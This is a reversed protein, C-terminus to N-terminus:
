AETDAFFDPDEAVLEQEVQQVVALTVGYAFGRRQLFGGLKQRFTPRDLRRLRRAKSLAAQYAAASVDIDSLVADIIDEAVGKQRLEYRLATPSRPKFTQRNELWYRAFATDDLYELTQLRALAAAIVAASFKKKALNQRVEETSRPRYALLRATQDIARTIQDAECLARIEADTLTQGKHLKAAEILTLSFAYEGDLYINACKPNRKQAEITTITAM